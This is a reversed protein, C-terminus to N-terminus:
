ESKSYILDLVKRNARDIVGWDVNIYIDTIKNEHSVHNLATGIDDKSVGCDNRAITAWSHRAYYSTIDSGLECAAAIQRLGTNVARVFDTHTSYLNHFNFLRDGSKDRYKEILPEIEPEVKISIFADDSRRGSTKRRNYSIRGDKYNTAEYIDVLNMGVLGFSLMFVDRALSLRRSQSANNADATDRIKRIQEVSLNRNKSQHNTKIKFKRFPYHSIILIGLDEDNYADRAANFITRIHTLYDAITRDSVAPRTTKRLVGKQDYRVMTRETQLHKAFQDLRKATIERISIVNHDFFDVLANVAARMAKGYSTRDNEFLTSIHRHAFDVFDIIENDSTHKQIFVCLEKASYSKVKSGLKQIILDEYIAIDKDIARAVITDKISKFDKSIQARVVYNGTNIYATTRASTVRISVPYKGDARKQHELVCIKFTAM